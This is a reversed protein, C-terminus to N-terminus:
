KHTGPGKLLLNKYFGNSLPGLVVASYGYVFAMSFTPIKDFLIGVYHLACMLRM